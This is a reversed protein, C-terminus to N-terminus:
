IEEMDPYMSYMYNLIEILAQNEYDVSEDYVLVMIAKDVTGSVQTGKDNDKKLRM